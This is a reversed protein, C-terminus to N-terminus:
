SVNGEGMRKAWYNSGSATKAERFSGWPSAVQSSGPSSTLSATPTSSISRAADQTSSLVRTAMAYTLPKDIVEDM